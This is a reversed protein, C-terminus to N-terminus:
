HPMGGQRGTTRRSGTRTASSRAGGRNMTWIGSSPTACARRSPSRPATASSGSPRPATSPAAADPIASWAIEPEDIEALAGLKIAAESIELFCMRIADYAISQESLVRMIGGGQALYDNIKAINRRIDDYRVGPKSSVVSLLGCHGRPASVACAGPAARSTHRSRRQSEPRPLAGAYRRSTRPSNFATLRAEPRLISRRISMPTRHITVGRWRASCQSM